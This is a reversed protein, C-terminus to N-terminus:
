YSVSMASNEEGACRGELKKELLKRFGSPSVNNLTEKISKYETLPGQRELWGSKRLFKM